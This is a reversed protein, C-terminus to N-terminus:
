NLQYIIISNNESQVLMELAPDDDANSIDVPSNGYVPFGDVAKGNSYFAFIKQTDLDTLTVYITNNLYHIKPSTYNGFPLIIPIGKIILKNESLTVLSKSTMDIQHGQKLGLSTLTVNGKTDIQVFKGNKSTSAFTKRYPFVPNLSTNVSEKIIIRDNGQRNLIRVKGNIDQLVIYDKNAFRVHKPQNGLPQNLKKLKFGSVIKGKSNFMQVKKGHTLLFRYNRNLDYDFVSMFNPEDSDIKKNFPKVIKGNRDLILFRDPTRFAMQLRRNKYLDVQEIKGVITGSLQKKWYLAGTNSFLYLVNNQDQVVIDMTKNRHNKIWQPPKAIPADLSFSYQNIVSNKKINPNDKQATFRSQVLEGDSIGQFVVIPYSKLQVKNWAQKKIKNLSIWKEKLSITNGIWLFTSNDALDEKLLTFNNDRNLTTGDKYVGILQKLYNKDSYILFDDVKAVYKPIFGMGFSEIFILLDDPLEQNKIGIGRFKYENENDSYLELPIIETNKLHFYIANETKNKLFGIEDVVSLPDFNIKKIPINRYRCYKIFNDELDKYDSVAIALFDEFNQPIIGPSIIPQPKLDKFLNLKDPISDNIISVGDLTFPDKKTNFDFSFWNSGLFPFLDTKPFLDNMIDEIEKHFYITLPSNKNRVNALKYFQEDQIGKKKNEVNRIINEVVLQSSSRIEINNIITSYVKKSGVKEISIPVSNYIFTEPIFNQLSDNINKKFIFTVANNNKGEQTINLLINSSIKDPLISSIDGYLNTKLQLIYRLFPVKEIANEVMKFDNIQFTAITNQPVFDLLNLEEKEESKCGFLLIFTILLIKSRM